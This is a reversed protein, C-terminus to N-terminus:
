MRFEIINKQVTVFTSNITWLTIFWHSGFQLEHVEKSYLTFNDRDKVLYWAMFICGLQKVELFSGGAGM